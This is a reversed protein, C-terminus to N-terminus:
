TFAPKSIPSGGPLYAEALTKSAAQGIGKRIYHSKFPDMILQSRMDLIVFCCPGKLQIAPLKIVAHICIAALDRRSVSLNEIRCGEPEGAKRVLSASGISCVLKTAPEKM